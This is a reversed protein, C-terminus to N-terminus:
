LDLLNLWKEKMASSKVAGEIFRMGHVGENIGPFDFLPNSSKGEIRAILTLAFNRYLNAFAEIYGEPHGAPVRTHARAADSIPEVGTRIIEQHGTLPKFLLTNPEMQHWEL